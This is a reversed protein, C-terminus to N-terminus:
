RLCKWIGYAILSLGSQCVCGWWLLIEALPIKGSPFKETLFQEFTIKEPLFSRMKFAVRNKQWWKISPAVFSPEIKYNEQELVLGQCSGPRLLLVGALAISKCANRNALGCIQAPITLIAGCFSSQIKATIRATM